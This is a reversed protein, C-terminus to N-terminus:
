VVPPSQSAYWRRALRRRMWRLTSYDTGLLAATENVTLGAALAALLQRALSSQRAVFAPWDINFAAEKWVSSRRARGRALQLEGQALRRAITLSARRRDAARGLERLAHWAAERGLQAASSDLMRGKACARRWERWAVMLAQQVFDEGPEGGYARWAAARIRREITPLNRLFREQWEREDAATM